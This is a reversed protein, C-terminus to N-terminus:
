WSVGLEELSCDTVVLDTQALMHGDPVRSNSHGITCPLNDGKLYLNIDFKVEDENNASRSNDYVNTVQGYNKVSVFEKLM